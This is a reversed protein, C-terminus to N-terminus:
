SRLAARCHSRRFTCADAAQEKHGQKELIQALHDGVEGHQSLLWSADVYRSAKALDGQQFYVWGLTDWYNGITGVESLQDLTIHM